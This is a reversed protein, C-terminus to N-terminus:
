QVVDRQRREVERKLYWIAKHLDEVGNKEDARWIYKLANGLCFNMHETVTICEVGSPHSTYHKPHNVADSDVGRADQHSERWAEGSSAGYPTEPIPCFHLATTWPEGCSPCIVTPDTMGRIQREFWDCPPIGAAARDAAYSEMEGQAAMHCAGCWFGEASPRGDGEVCPDGPKGIPVRGSMPICTMCYEVSEMQGGCVHCLISM